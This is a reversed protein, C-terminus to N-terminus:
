KYSELTKDTLQKLIDGSNKIKNVSDDMVRKLTWLIDDSNETDYSIIRTM